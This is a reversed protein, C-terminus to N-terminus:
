VMLFPWYPSGPVSQTIALMITFSFPKKAKKGRRLTQSLFFSWFDQIQRTPSKKLIIGHSEDGDTVVMQCFINPVKELCRFCIWVTSGLQDENM